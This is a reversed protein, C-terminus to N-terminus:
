RSNLIVSADRLVADLAAPGSGDYRGRVRSREDVLVLGKGGPFQALVEGPASEVIQWRTGARRRVENLSAQAVGPAFSVLRLAEGLNRSRHQLLRMTEAALAGGPGCDHCIVNAVFAAGHVEALPPFAGLVPPPPPARGRLGTVFPVGFLVLLIGVWFWPYGVLASVRRQIPSATLDPEV